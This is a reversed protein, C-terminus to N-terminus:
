PRYRQGGRYMGDSYLGRRGNGGGNGYDRGGYGGGGGGQRQQQQQQYGSGSGSGARFGYRGDSYSPQASRRDDYPTKNSMSSDRMYPDDRLDSRRPEFTRAESGRTESGRIESGPVENGRMEAPAPGRPRGSNATNDDIEMMDADAASTTQRPPASRPESPLPLTPKSPTSSTNNIPTSLIPSPGGPKLYVYLLKGDAKQNNYMAVVNEAGERETFVIEAMVTPNATILRCSEIKGGVPLMAAEIDAATTGLAFNSAVVVYPGTAMGRITMSAASATPPARINVQSTSTSGNLSPKSLASFLSDRGSRSTPQTTSNRNSRPNRPALDHTWQGNLSSKPTTSSSRKTVGVRSALSAGPGTSLSNRPSRGPLGSANRGSGLMQQALEQHSKKTRQAQILEDFSTNPAKGAQAM